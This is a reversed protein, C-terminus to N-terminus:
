KAGPRPAATAGTANNANPGQIELGSGELLRALQEYRLQGRPAVEVQLVPKWYGGSLAYGWRDIRDAVIKALQEASTQMSVDLMVTQPKDKSGQDPLVVWRDEYCAIRINRVVATERAPGASWAWNRGKSKALSEVKDKKDKKRLSMDAMPSASDMNVESANGSVSGFGESRPSAYQSGGTGSASASGAAAQNSQSDATGNQKSRAATMADRFTGDRNSASAQSNGDLREEARQGGGEGRQMSGASGSGGSTYRNGSFAGEAFSNVGNGNPQGNTGNSNWGQGAGNATANNGDAGNAANAGQTSANGGTAFGLMGGGGPAGAMTGNAMASNSSAASGNNNRMSGDPAFAFGGRGGAIGGSNMGASNMGASNAGTGNMGAGSEAGSGLAANGPIGTGAPGSLSGNSALDTPGGEGSGMGFGSGGQGTAESGDGWGGEGEEFTINDDRLEQMADRYRGPMAMVLAGQRHRATVLTRELEKGLTPEPDPFTLEMDDEILEYGFQDDWGAMAMRALAYTRIGSSRVVLLPYASANLAGTKPAYYSRVTRLAADLPNGPGYPPRLDKLGIVVGEPQIVIGDARCELYIPRRHTGNSGEYPIIAFVPKENSPKEVKEKLKEAAEKLEKQLESLSSELEEKTQEDTKEKKEIVEATKSLQQLEKELDATQEELAQLAMRKKEIELQIKERTEKFSDRASEVQVRLLEAREKRTDVAQKVAAQSQGVVLVLMLVLAGVTCLLVALFPFLSPSHDGRGQKKSSM